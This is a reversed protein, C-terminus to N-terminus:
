PMHPEGLTGDYVTSPHMSAGLPTLSPIYTGLVMCNNSKTAASGGGSPPVMAMTITFM